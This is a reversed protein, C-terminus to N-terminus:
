HENNTLYLLGRSYRRIQNTTPSDSLNSLMDAIKVRRAIEHKKIGYLYDFESQGSKTLLKVATTVSEPIGSITFTLEVVKTDELVDHLWAAARIEPLEKALRGVVAEVHVIYPTVGDRRFQGRHAERAISEAAALFDNM